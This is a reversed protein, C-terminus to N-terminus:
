SSAAPLRYFTALAGSRLAVYDRNPTAAAPAAPHTIARVAALVEGPEGGRAIVALAETRRAEDLEDLGLAHALGTFDQARVSGAAALYAPYTVVAVDRLEVEILTRVVVAGIFDWDDRLTRFRFSMGTVDGRRMVAALDRAYSTPAMRASVRLGIADEELDLTDAPDGRRRALVFNPDHNLTFRVDDRAIAGAFAGPAIVEFFGGLDQSRENFKAAYGEFPIEEGDAAARVELPPLGTVHRLELGQADYRLAPRVLTTM